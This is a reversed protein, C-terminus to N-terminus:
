RSRQADLPNRAEVAVLPALREQLKKALQIDQLWQLKKALQANENAKARKLSKKILHLHAYINRDLVTSACLLGGQLEGAVGSSFVDQGSIYLNKVPTDCRNKAMSVPDYRDLNEASYMAGLHAGTYTSLPTSVEQYVLKERLKPFHQCAWDFMNNAFRMKYAMYDDGTTSDVNWEDFWDSNVYTLMIMSTKGPHRKKATTDKASPLTFYMMPINEPADEKSLSFFNDMMKDMDNDKYFWNTAQSLGLEEPIADFGCFTLLCGKGPKLLNVRAQIDPQMSIERPLLRNFTNFLGCNSIVVKSRVEVEEQGKKVVVGCATGEADLLIRSVPARVLVEGGYKRITNSIHYPIESAGGKPYYAGRKYHHVLLSNMLISSDKPPTGHFLYNFMLQLDKNNTQQDAWWSASTHSLKFVSLLRDAIGSKLLFLALWRPILKLSALAPIQKSCLKMLKFFNEVAQADNPFQKKLHAEMETEGSLLTYTRCDDGQGIHMTNIHQDLKVFELQGETIQDIAVKTLGNEHMQGVYHLGVDFEFGKEVFSHTCGGATDHQELVLVKKGVKALCAAATLGGVGSGIIVADLDHPICEKTFDKKLVKDRKKQDMQQPEKSRVSELSFPSSKSFLFWYIRRLFDLPWWLFIGQLALWM